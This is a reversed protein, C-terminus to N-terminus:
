VPLWLLIKLIEKELSISLKSDFQVTRSSVSLFVSLMCLLRKLGNFAFCVVAKPGLLVEYCFKKWSAQKGLSEELQFFLGVEKVRRKM